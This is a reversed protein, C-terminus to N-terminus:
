PRLVVRGVASVAPGQLRIYYLGPALNQLSIDASTQGPKLASERVIRGTAELVQLSSYVGKWRMSILGSTPNPALVISVPFRAEVPPMATPMGTKAIFLVAQAQRLLSNGDFDSRETMHGIVTPFGATDFAISRIRDYYVWATPVGKVWFLQGNSDAVAIGMVATYPHASSSPFASFNYPPYSVSDQRVFGIALNGNKDSSFATVTGNGLTASWKAAGPGAHVSINSNGYAVAVENAPMLALMTGTVTNSHPLNKAWLVNGATDLKALYADCSACGGPGNKYLAFSGLVTSDTFRGAFFVEGNSDVALSSASEGRSNGYRKCWILGGATDLKIAVVDANNNGLPPLALNGVRLTDFTHGVLYVFRGQASINGYLSEPLRVSWLRQGAEGYKTLYGAPGEVVSNLLRLSDSVTTYVYANRADDTALSGFYNIYSLTTPGIGVAGVQRTWVPEGMANFRGIFTELPHDALEVLSDNGFVAKYAYNGGAYFGGDPLLSIAHGAVFHSSSTDNTKIWSWLPAQASAAVGFWGCFILLFATKIM